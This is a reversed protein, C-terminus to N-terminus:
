AGNPALPHSALPFPGLLARVCAFCCIAGSPSKGGPFPWSPRARLRFVMLRWKAGSPSKGGPLPWTPRPRLRFLMQRCIAGSPSKGGPLPWTPRPRLRCIAASFVNPLFCKAALPALPHSFGIRLALYSGRISPLM